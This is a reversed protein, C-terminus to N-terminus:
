NLAVGRRIYTPLDLDEGNHITAETKDFRNKSVIELPLPIQRPRASPKRTRASKGARQALMPDRPDATPSPLPPVMRAAPKKTATGPLWENDLGPTEDGTPVREANAATAPADARLVRRTAIVTLALQDRFTEEVVAGLLVQARPCQGNIQEMVRNIDALTLDPGGVISVVVAEADGLAAGGELMPHASLKEVADRSRNPGAAAVAAFCSEAHRDRFLGCLDAFHLPILGKFALLRWVGRAGELLLRTTTKFTDLLSTNEDILKTIKECPLCIVGDAAAQLRELGARAQSQRRNGECGFPLTVFALVLAGSEKAARALVPAMGTGAGGGLGAVIFVADMGACATKFQAIHTEALERGREPDGGTGLGRLMKTELHIKEPASSAALSAADASVAVFGAGAFDGHSMAELMALGAKGVGFIKVAVGIKEPATRPQPAIQTEM